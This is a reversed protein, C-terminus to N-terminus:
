KEEKVKTRQRNLGKRVNCKWMSLCCLLTAAYKKFILNKYCPLIVPKEQSPGKPFLDM